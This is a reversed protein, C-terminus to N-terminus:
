QGVTVSFPPPLPTAPAKGGDVIPAVTTPFGAAVTIVEDGPRLGDPLTHSTLASVALLNASSGSNTLLAERVGVARALENEFAEGQPGLTLWFDLVTDVAATVESADFVRGAYPVPTVGPVFEKPQLHRAQSYERVKDLIEQHLDQWM